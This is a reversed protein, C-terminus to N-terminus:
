TEAAGEAAADIASNIAGNGSSRFLQQDIFLSVDKEIWYSSHAALAAVYETAKEIEKEQLMYDIRQGRNLQGTQLTNSELLYLDNDEPITSATDLLGMRTMAGEFAEVFNEQTDRTTDLLKRWLRKTHYQVRFGGNWHMMTVPEFDANRADICPEIRYAVPDFPHFINFVRTCGGLSFDASLPNRQNRIMLFVAVPSGLLFFNNVEFQLQPCPSTLEPVGTESLPSASEGVSPEVCDEKEFKVSASPSFYHDGLIDWSIISGLSHGVVSIEGDFGTLKRFKRVVVNMENTVVDIILDHHEPSMFYLVDMLTDNAFDRMSPITRLSIDKFMVNLKDSSGGDQEDSSPSRQSLISFAEHWEVPLYEVSTKNNNLTDHSTPYQTSFQTAKLDAHNNRLFNCCDVISDNARLMEGIGHVVLVLHKNKEDGDDMACEDLMKMDRVRAPPVALSRVIEDEKNYPVQCSEEKHPPLSPTLVSRLSMNPVLTDGLSGAKELAQVVSEEVDFPREPEVESPETSTGARVVGRYVRQKFVAVASGVGKQIATVASLSSFQILRDTGDPCPVEVTLLSGDLNSDDQKLPHRESLWILFLYADELIVQSEEGFPQLGHRPSDILWTARRVEDGPGHVRWFTPRRSMGIAPLSLLGGVSSALRSDKKSFFSVAYRKQDVLVDSTSDPVYWKAITPYKAAMSEVDSDKWQNNQRGQSQCNKLAERYRNELANQEQSNLCVWPADKAPRKGNIYPLRFYLPSVVPSEDLLHIRSGTNNNYSLPYTLDDGLARHYSPCESLWEDNKTQDNGRNRLLGTLVLDHYLDRNKARIHAALEYRSVSNPLSLYRECFHDIVNLKNLENLTAYPGSGLVRWQTHSLARTINADARQLYVFVERGAVSLAWKTGNLVYDVSDRVQNRSPVPYQVIEWTRLVFGKSFLVSPVLVSEGVLPVRKMGELSYGALQQAQKSQSFNVIEAAAREVGNFTPLLIWDRTPQWVGGEIQSAGEKAANYGNQACQLAALLLGRTVNYFTEWQDVASFAADISVDNSDWLHQKTTLAAHQSIFQVRRLPIDSPGAVKRRRRISPPSLSKDEM